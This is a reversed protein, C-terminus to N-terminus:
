SVSDAVPAFPGFGNKGCAGAEASELLCIRRVDRKVVGGTTRVYKTRVFGDCTEECRIEARPVSSIMKNKTSLPIRENDFFMRWTTYKNGGRMVSSIMKYKTSLPIREDDFFIQWTTYKNGGRMFSSFMKYNALYHIQKWGAHYQTVLDEASPLGLSKLMLLLTNPTLSELDKIDSATPILLRNNVVCKM